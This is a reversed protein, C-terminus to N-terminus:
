TTTMIQQYSDAFLKLGEQQLTDGVENLSIGLKELAVYDHQAQEVDNEITVALHGHDRFANLTAGPVTNITEPGILNDLYKVDSFAPNKTGTSAWLLYQPRCGQQALESFRDGHFIQKYRQYALKALMLASSGQLALAEESGIKALRADVLTDVRSLFLSAVAKVSSGHGGQALFHRLGREYAEFIRITQPISFLLTINISIGAGILQEFAAVGAATAPIKIMVNAKNVAKHLRHAAKITGETDNALFPSVELSVYGDNGATQEFTPMLIDCAAQIDPIVLAEYRGEADLTGAKLRALDDRYYPSDTLAKQFISPNSTVGSIGDEEILRALEGERILTRSLNDLWISQGLAKIDSLKSM